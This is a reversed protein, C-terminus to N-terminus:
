ITPTTMELGGVAILQTEEDIKLLADVSQPHGPFRDSIDGWTGYSFLSLIGQQSTCLVKSSNKILCLSLLEDDQNDSQIYGSKEWTNSKSPQPQPNSDLQPL